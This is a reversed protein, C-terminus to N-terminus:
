GISIERTKPKAAEAKPIHVHLVGDTLDAKIGETNVTEPLRFGRSFTSHAFERRTYRETEKLAETKKDASITLVDNEISLKLDEKSFGPALMQLEFADTREVINVSPVNRKLDDSGFFHGIDRGLFENMLDGFPSAFSTHPRYKTLTM